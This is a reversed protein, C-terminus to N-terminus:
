WGAMVVANNEFLDQVNKDDLWQNTYFKEKSKM